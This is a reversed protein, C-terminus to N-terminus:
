EASSIGKGALVDLMITARNRVGQTAQLDNVIQTFWDYAEQLKNEKMASIGLAERAAHRFPLGAGALPKLRASISAYDQSDVALIGARLKAVMRFDEDFSADSAIADFEKLAADKDGKGALEGAIRMRALAPYQGSGEKSLLKLAAISEDYKGDASLAIAAIYADGSTAAQNEKYSLWGRYAGTAVVIAIAVAILIKGYKDWLVKANDERLQEDVERIFSDDSM